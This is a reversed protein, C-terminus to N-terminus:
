RAAPLNITVDYCSFANRILPGKHHFDVQLHAGQLPGTWSNFLCDLRRHNSVVHREYSTMSVKKRELQQIFWILSYPDCTRNQQCIDYVNTYIYAFIHYIITHYIKYRSPRFAIASLKCVVNWLANVTRVLNTHYNKSIHHKFVHKNRILNIFVKHSIEGLHFIVSCKQLYTLFPEPLPKM